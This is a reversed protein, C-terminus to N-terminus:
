READDDADRNRLTLEALAGGESRNMITVDGGYCTRAIRRALYLGLGLGKEKTTVHPEFLRSGVAASVGPGDDEVRIRVGGKAEDAIAGLRVVGGQPSADRANAALTQVLTRVEAAVGLIRLEPTPAAVEVRLSPDGGQILELAVDNLIAGVAISEAPADRRTSLGLFTTVTQDLRAVQARIDGFLTARRRDGEALVELEDLALLVVNLPNRLSHALGRGIDAIDALHRNELSRREHAELEVLRASLGNFERIAARIEATGEVPVRVEREGSALRATGDVLRRLPRTLRALLLAAMLSGAAVIAASGIRLESAFREGLDDIERHPIEIRRAATAAAAHREPATAPVLPMMRVSYGSAGPQRRDPEVLETAVTAARSPVTTAPVLPLAPIAANTSGAELMKRGVDWAIEASERRLDVRLREVLIWQGGILAIASGLFVLALRSRLSSLVAM